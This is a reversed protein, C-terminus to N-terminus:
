FQIFEGKENLGYRGKIEPLKHKLAIRHCEDYVREWALTAFDRGHLAQESTVCFMPTEQAERVLKHLKKVEPKTAFVGTNKM